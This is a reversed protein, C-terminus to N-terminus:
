NALVLFHSVNLVEKYMEGYKKIKSMDEAFYWRIETDLIEFISLFDLLYVYSIDTLFNLRIEVSDISYFLKEQVEAKIGAWFFFEEIKSGGEIKLLGTEPNFFVKPSIETGEKLTIINKEQKM